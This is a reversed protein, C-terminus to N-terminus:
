EDWHRMPAWPDCPEGVCNLKKVPPWDSHLDTKSVNPFVSRFRNTEFDSRAFNWRSKQQARWTKRRKYVERRRQNKPLTKLWSRLEEDIIDWALELRSTVTKKKLHLRRAIKLHRMRPHECHLLYVRHLIKPLFRVDEALHDLPPRYKIWADTPALDRLILDDFGPTQTLLFDVFDQDTASM